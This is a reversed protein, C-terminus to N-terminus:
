ALYGYREFLKDLTSPPLVKGELKHAKLAKRYTDVSMTRGNRTLSQIADVVPHYGSPAVKVM